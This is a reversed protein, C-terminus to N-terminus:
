RDSFHQSLVSVALGTLVGASTLEMEGFPLQIIAQEHGIYAMAGRSTYEFPLVKAQLRELRKELRNASEHSMAADCELTQKVSDLRALQAFVTALYRGQQNAAQATPPCATAAADGIVFVSDEAGVLRMYGDVLLGRRNTQRDKIQAQIDRTLPRATNGAAWVLMGFPIKVIEGKDNKVTISAEEVEKVMHQTLIQIENDQFVGETVKALKESFMPLITPM